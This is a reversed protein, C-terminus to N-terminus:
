PKVPWFDGVMPPQEVDERSVLTQFLEQNRILSRVRDLWKKSVGAPEYYEKFSRETTERSIINKETPEGMTDWKRRWAEHFLWSSTLAGYRKQGQLFVPVCASGCTHAWGVVTMLRHTKKIRKLAAVTQEMARTSGGCSHLHLVVETVQEKAKGFEAEIKADMDNSISGIWFLSLRGYGIDTDKLDGEGCPDGAHALGSMALAAAVAAGASRFAGVQRLPGGFVSIRKVKLAGVGSRHVPIKQRAADPHANLPLTVSVSVAARV